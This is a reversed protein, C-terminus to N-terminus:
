KGYRLGYSNLNYSSLDQRKKITQPFVMKAIWWGPRPFIGDASHIEVLSNGSSKASQVTSAHSLNRLIKLIAQDQRYFTSKLSISTHVEASLAAVMLVVFLPPMM